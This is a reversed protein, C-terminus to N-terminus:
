SGLQSVLDRTMFTPTDRGFIGADVAVSGNRVGNLCLVLSHRAQRGVGEERRLISLAGQKFKPSAM